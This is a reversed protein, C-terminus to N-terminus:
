IAAQADRGECAGDTLKHAGIRCLWTSRRGLAVGGQSTRSM